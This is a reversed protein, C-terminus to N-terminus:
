SALPGIELTLGNVSVVQVEMDRRPTFNASSRKAAWIEGRIFIQGTDGEWSRVRGTMGVLAALGAPRVIQQSRAVFVILVVAIACVLFVPVVIYVLPMGATGYDDQFLLLSGVFMSAAGSLGLLGFSVIKIELLFLVLSFCILLLGVLSTPLISMAFLGMLLSLGGVVGPFIAGPHTIEIFLGLMGALLLLYAVQPHLLWSLFAYRMGPDFDAVEIADADFTRTTGQFLVGAQGAQRLFEGDTQAVHEVVKHELAERATISVADTVASAYWQSNRGHAEAVGRVLATFDNTVKRAMTDSIEVGGLGVPTAAGITTQPAMGAVSAAAVLFVGASAARAGAPGVWVAVPLPANLMTSVMSRMSDGLGGPTDLTLLLLDADREQAHVVAARLLEDQAPSIPAAISVRIVRYPEGSARAGAAGAVFLAIAVLFLVIRLQHRM